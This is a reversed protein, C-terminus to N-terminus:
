RSFNRKESHTLAEDREVEAGIVSENSEHTIRSPVFTQAPEDDTVQSSSSYAADSPTPFEELCAFLRDFLQTPTKSFLPNVLVANAYQKEILKMVQKVIRMREEDTYPAPNLMKGNFVDSIMQEFRGSKERQILQVDKDILDLQLRYAIDDTLFDWRGLARIKQMMAHLVEKLPYESAINNEYTEHIISARSFLKDLLSLGDSDLKIMAGNAILLRLMSPQMWVSAINLLTEGEQNKANVNGNQILSTLIAEDAVSLSTRPDGIYALHHCAKYIADVLNDTADLVSYSRRTESGYIMTREGYRSNISILM